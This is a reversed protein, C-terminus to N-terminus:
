GGMNEEQSFKSKWKEKKDLWNNLKKFVPEGKGL